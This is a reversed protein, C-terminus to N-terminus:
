KGVPEENNNANADEPRSSLRGARHHGSPSLVVKPASGSGMKADDKKETVRTSLPKTDPDVDDDDLGPPSLEQSKVSTAAARGSRSKGGGGSASLSTASDRNEEGGLKSDDDDGSGIEGTEGKKM